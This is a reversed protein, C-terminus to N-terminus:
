LNRAITLERQAANHVRACDFRHAVGALYKRHREDREEGVATDADRALAPLQQQVQAHQEQARAGLRELSRVSQERLAETRALLGHLRTIRAQIDTAPM